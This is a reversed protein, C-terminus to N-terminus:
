VKVGRFDRYLGLNNLFIASDQEWMRIVQYHHITTESVYETTFAIEDRTPQLFIVVQTVPLQYKQTLRVYYDLM